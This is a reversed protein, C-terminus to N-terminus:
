PQILRLVPHGTLVQLMGTFGQQVRTIRAGRFFAPDGNQGTLRMERPDHHLPTPEDNTRDRRCLRTPRAAEM